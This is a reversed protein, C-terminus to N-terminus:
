RTPATRRGLLEGAVAWLQALQRRALLLLLLGYLGGGLAVLLALRLAAPEIGAVIPRAAWVALAMGVACVLPPIVAGITGRLDVGAHRSLLIQPYALTLYSRLVYAAAVAILGYPLAILTLGLTLGFQLAAISLILGPRNVAALAPGSFFNMVFPLAMLALVRAVAGAGAWEAGFLLVVVEEALVAFGALLPFVGLAAVGVFRNYARSLAARDEHLRSLTVLAVSGIPALVTQGVLEILRWAVRYRGVEAAGYARGIFVDQVRGLLMWLLQSLTMSLNFHSLERVLSREFRWQPRWRCARWALATSMLGGVVSQVVLSWVGFGALASAVAVAGAVVGTLLAQWALTRHGFDRSLRAAPVVGLATIPLTAALAQIVPAVAPAHVAAAYFPAVAALLGGAVLSVLLAFWVSTSSFAETLTPQRTVADGVGAGAVIRGIEVVVGALAFVGFETPGLLRALVLFLVFSTVSGGAVRLISWLAASASRLRLPAGGEAPPNPLPPATM